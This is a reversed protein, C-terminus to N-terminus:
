SPLVAVLVEYMFGEEIIMGEPGGRSVSIVM